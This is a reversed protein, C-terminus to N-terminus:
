EEKSGEVSLIFRMHKKGLIELKDNLEKHKAESIFGKNLNGYKTDKNRLYKKKKIKSLKKILNELQHKSMDEIKTAESKGSVVLGSGSVVLLV